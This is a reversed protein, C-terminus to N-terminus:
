VQVIIDRIIDTVINGPLPQAGVDIWLIADYLDLFTQWDGQDPVGNPFPLLGLFNWNLMSMLHEETDLLASAM